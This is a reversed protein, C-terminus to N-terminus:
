STTEHVCSLFDSLEIARPYGWFGRVPLEGGSWGGDYRRDLRDIWDGAGFFATENPMTILLNEYGPGGHSRDLFDTVPSCKSHHLTVVTLQCEAIRVAEDLSRVAEAEHEATVGQARRDRERIARIEPDTAGMEVLARIHGRDNAAVLALDRSWLLAPFDFYAFVQELSTPRTRGAQPGHHDIIVFRDRPFDSPLDDILEILLVMQGAALSAEIEHCYASVKAGWSLRRDHVAVGPRDALLRGIEVMELDHGGLFVATSSKVM